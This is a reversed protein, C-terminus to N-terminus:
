IRHSKRGYMEGPGLPISFQIYGPNTYGPVCLGMEGVPGTHIGGIGLKTRMHPIISEVSRDSTLDRYGPM